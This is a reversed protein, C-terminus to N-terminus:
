SSPISFIFSSGRGPESEVWIKGGHREAIRKCISLGIGTGPYEERSHLRQFITFIQQYYQPDIGIGNDSVTFIHDGGTKEASIRILPAVGEKRFKVANSILNQFLRTIQGEDARIVPMQGYEVSAGATQLMVELHKVVNSLIDGVNVEEFPKGHTRVRSFELLGMILAQLRNAGDVAFHIFDNADQDIHDKYRREILQLYSSIMRLPEQLDHSAVYAFQQLELNSRELEKIFINREEEALRRMSIDRVFILASNKLNYVIPEGATEVWVESGDLKLFKLELLSTVSEREDNLSHMRQGAIDHFDRHVREMVTKGALESEDVAGFLRLAAPNLYLFVGGSQIFIPDPAREVISRFREESFKLQEQVFKRDSINIVIAFIQEEPGPLMVDALLVWVRSGDKRTYEKEYPACIGKERLERVARSDAESYEPPTIENWRILGKEFDNRDYGTMELYCDNVEILGGGSDAIIMGAVNSSIMRDLREYATRLKEETKKRETIDISLIFVGEPVPQISLDFWGSSGDPFLFENEIQHSSREELCQRILSFVHTETIGPWTDMFRKGILEASPRRSQKEAASNMYIYRWDFDMIQGGELMNDLTSRFREESKKLAKEARKRESINRDTGRYGRFVGDSDFIPVGNSELVVMEGNKGVNINELGSFPKKESLINRIAESSSIAEHSPMFDFPTKGIIEPPEYGLFSYVAPSSYTYFGKEEIEWIWDNITEVLSRFREESSELAQGANYLERYFIESQKKWIFGITVGTSGILGMVLIVLMWLRKKVSAYIESDDMRSVIFWKTGPIDRLAATVPVGRYDLGEFIGSYGQVAMAAPLSNRKLSFRLNMATNKQFRLENLFLVDDGDRRVLLTEATKSSTPWREIMPYLYNRPDVVMVLFGINDVSVDRESLPVIVSLHIPKDPAERHFDTLIVSKARIAEDLYDHWHRFDVPHAGAASIRVSGASDALFIGAYGYSLMVKNLWIEIRKRSFPNGDKLFRRVLNYFDMNEFFVNGDGIREKKWQILESVKLDAIASLQNGMETKHNFSYQRYNIYGAIVIGTTMLLFLSVLQIPLGSHRSPDYVPDENLFHYRFVGSLIFLSGLAFGLPMPDVYSDQIPNFNRFFSGFVMIMTGASIMVIQKIYQRRFRGSATLMIVAGSILLLYSYFFHIKMWLGPIRTGISPLFFLGSRFFVIDCLEWLGYSGNTWIVIQTVAPILLLCVIRVHTIYHEKKIFVLAFVFWFVPILSYCLSTMTFWFHAIRETPGAMSLAQFVSLLFTLFAIRMYSAAVSHLKRRNFSYLTLFGMIALTILVSLLHLIAVWPPFSNQM